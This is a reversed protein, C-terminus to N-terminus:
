WALAGDGENAFEPWVPRDDGAAAIAASAESWGERPSRKTPRLVIAGNEVRMEAEGTLGVEVLLPKPIIVGQSNGLKRLTTLM